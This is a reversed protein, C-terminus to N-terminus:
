TVLGSIDMSVFLILAQLVTLIETKITAVDSRPLTSYCRPVGKRDQSKKELIRVFGSMKSFKMKDQCKLGFDQCIRVFRSRPFGSTHIYTHQPILRMEENM